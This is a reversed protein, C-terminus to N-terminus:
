SPQMRERKVPCVTGLARAMGGSLSACLSSFDDFSTMAWEFYPSSEKSALVTMTRCSFAFGYKNPDM